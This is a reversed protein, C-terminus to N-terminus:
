TAIIIKLNNDMIKKQFRIYLDGYLRNKDKM